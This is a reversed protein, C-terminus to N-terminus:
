KKGLCYLFGDTRLLLQGNHAVPCANTRSDDDTFTNHALLKFEPGPAV